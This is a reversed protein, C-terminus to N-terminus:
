PTEKAPLRWNRSAGTLAIRVNGKRVILVAAAFVIFTAFSQTLLAPFPVVKPLNVVFAFIAPSLLTCVVFFATGRFLYRRGLYVCFVSACITLSSLGAPTFSLFDLFLGGVFGCFMAAELQDRFLLALSLALVLNPSYWVGLVEPFFSLQLITLVINVGTIIVYKKM